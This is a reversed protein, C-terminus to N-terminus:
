ILFHVYSSTIKPFHHISRLIYSLSIFSPSFFILDIKKNNIDNDTWQQLQILRQTWDNNNYKDHNSNDNNKNNNNNNNDITHNNNKDNDDNNNKDNGEKSKNNKNNDYNNDNYNDINITNKHIIDIKTLSIIRKMKIVDLFCNKRLQDVGGGGERRFIKM